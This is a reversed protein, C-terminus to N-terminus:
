QWSGAWPTQAIASGAWSDAAQQWLMDQPGAEGGKCQEQGGELSPSTSTIRTEELALHGSKRKPAAQASAM